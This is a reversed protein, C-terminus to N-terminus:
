GSTVFLPFGAEDPHIKMTKGAVDCGMFKILFAQHCAIEDM